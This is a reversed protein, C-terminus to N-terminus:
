GARRSGRVRRAPHVLGATGRPIPRGAAAHIPSEGVAFEFGFAPVKSQVALGHDEIREQGRRCPRRRVEEVVQVADVAHHGDREFPSRPIQVRRPPLNAACLAVVKGLPVRHHGVYLFGFARRRRHDIARGFHFGVAQSIGQDFEFRLAHGIAIQREGNGQVAVKLLGFAEVTVHEADERRVVRLHDAFPVALEGRPEASQRRLRALPLDSGHKYRRARRRAQRGDVAWRGARRAAWVKVPGREGDEFGLPLRRKVVVQKVAVDAM